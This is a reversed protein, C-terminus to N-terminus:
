RAGAEVPPDGVIADEPILVAHIRWRLNSPSTAVICIHGNVMTHEVRWGIADHLDTFRQWDIAGAIMGEVFPALDRNPDHTIPLDIEAM